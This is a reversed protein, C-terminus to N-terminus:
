KEGTHARHYEGPAICEVAPPRKKTTMKAQKVQVEKHGQQRELHCKIERSDRVRNFELNSRKKTIQQHLSKIEYSNERSLTKTKRRSEWDSYWEKAKKRKVMWPEKGQELLSIVSPKTESLGLSTLNNYNELMVDKYLNKQESHLCEWEKQSFYIALDKFSDRSPTEMPPESILSRSIKAFIK